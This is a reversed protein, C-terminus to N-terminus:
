IMEIRAEKIIDKQYKSILKSEKAIFKNINDLKSHHNKLQVKSLEKIKSHETKVKNILSGVQESPYYVAVLQRDAQDMSHTGM